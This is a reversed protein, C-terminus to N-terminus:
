ARPKRLVQSSLATQLVKEAPSARRTMIVANGGLILVVALAMEPTMELDELWVALATAVLPFLIVVYGARNAGLRGVLTLYAGFGIVSGFVVLFALSGLYPWTVAFQWPEGLALCGLGVFLAGYGMGWANSQVVPLGGQQAHQSLVNGLSASLAGCLSIAGGIVVQDQLALRSVQPWYLAVIGAMGLLAGVYVRPPSRVGLFLRANLINMWVLCAFMLANFASSVYLQAAYAALYNLGFLLVGLAAFVRHQRWGFRLSRGSLLCWAVLLASAAAYRYFVSQALPVEGLQYNIAIWTSGWILVTIVYLWLNSM